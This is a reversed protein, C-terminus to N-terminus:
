LRKCLLASWLVDDIGNLTHRPRTSSAWDLERKPPRMMIHLCSVLSSPTCPAAAGFRVKAKRRENAFMNKLLPIDHTGDGAELQCKGAVPCGGWESQPGRM